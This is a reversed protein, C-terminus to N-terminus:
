IAVEIKEHLLHKKWARAKVVRAYILCCIPSIESVVPRLEFSHTERNGMLETVWVKKKDTRNPKRSPADPKSHVPATFFSNDSVIEWHICSIHKGKDRFHLEM